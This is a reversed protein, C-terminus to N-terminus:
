NPPSRGTGFSCRSAAPAPVLAASSHVGAWGVASLGAAQKRETEEGEIGGKEGRRLKRPRDAHRPAASVKIAHTTASDGGAGNAVLSRDAMIPRLGEAYDFDHGGGGGDRLCNASGTAAGGGQRACLIVGYCFRKEDWFTFYIRTVNGRYAGGGGGHGHLISDRGNAVVRTKTIGDSFFATRTCFGTRADRVFRYTNQIALALVDMCAAGKGWACMQAKARCRPGTANGSHWDSVSFLVLERLGSLQFVKNLPEAPPSGNLFGVSIWGGRCLRPDGKWSSM